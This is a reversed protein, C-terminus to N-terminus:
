AKSGVGGLTREEGYSVVVPPVALGVGVKAELDVPFGDGVKPQVLGVRVEPHPIAKVM